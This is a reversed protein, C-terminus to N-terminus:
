LLTGRKSISTYVVSDGKTKYMGSVFVLAYNDFHKAGLSSNLPQLTQNHNLCAQRSRARPNKEQEITM